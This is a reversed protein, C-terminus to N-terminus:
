KGNVKGRGNEIIRQPNRILIRAAYERGMVKEVYDACRGMCPKRSKMNHADSGIFDLLDAQMVKKCFRKMMFGHDGMVSEANIQIYAGMDRLGQIEDLHRYLAKYREIHAIIPVYGNMILENCRERIGSFTWSDSFEVLVCRSSGLTMTPDSNLLDIMDMNAHFECGQLIRFNPDIKLAEERVRQMRVAVLKRDPEFMGRRYHSTAYITRVGDAYSAKLMAITEKLNSSGDDVGPIIHIHIDYIGKM